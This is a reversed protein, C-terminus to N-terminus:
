GPAARCALGVYLAIDAGVHIGIPVWLSGLRWRVVGGGIGVAALLAIHLPLLAVVEPGAHVIGFVLGQFLIAWGIPTIRALWGQLAGRYLVEELVGNAIGFIVAPVLAAIPMPFDLVGFFPRAIMPGLFLGGVVLVLLGGVGFAAEPRSPRRLGLEDPGSRHVRALGAVVGLGVVALLLRRVAIGSVPDVCGAEGLPVDSGVLLPWPLVVALPLVAAWAIAEPRRVTALVAWGVVVGIAVPLRADPLLAAVLLLAPGVAALARSGSGGTRTELRTRPM